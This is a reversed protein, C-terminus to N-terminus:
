RNPRCAPPPSATRARSDADTCSNRGARSRSGSAADRDPAARGSIAPEVALVADLHEVEGVLIRAGAALRPPREEFRQDGLLHRHGQDARGAGVVDDAIGIDEMEVLCAPNSRKRIPMSFVSSAVSLSILFPPVM